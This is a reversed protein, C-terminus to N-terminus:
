IKLLLENISKGHALGRIEATGPNKKWEEASIFGIRSGLRADGIFRIGSKVRAEISSNEVVYLVFNFEGSDSYAKIAKNYRWNTKGTREYELAVIATSSKGQLKFVADPYKAGEERINLKFTASNQGKLERETMWRTCLAEQELKWLGRAVIEDHKIFQPQIFYVSRWNQEQAMEQGLHGIIFTDVLSDCPHAKFVGGEVLLRLQKQKWRVTGKGFLDNWTGRTIVGVKTVYRVAQYVSPSVKRGNRYKM